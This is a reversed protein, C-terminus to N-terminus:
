KNNRVTTPSLVGFCLTEVCMEQNLARKNENKFEYSFHWEQLLDNYKVSPSFVNSWLEDVM